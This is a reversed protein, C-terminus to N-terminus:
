KGGVKLETITVCGDEDTPPVCPVIPIEGIVAPGCRDKNCLIIYEAVKCVRRCLKGSEDAVYEWLQLLKTGAPLARLAPHDPQTAPNFDLGYCGPSRISGPKIAWVMAM